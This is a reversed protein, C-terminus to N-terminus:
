DSHGPGGMALGEEGNKVKAKCFKINIFCNIERKEGHGRGNWDRLTM